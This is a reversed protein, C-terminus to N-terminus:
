NKNSLRLCLLLMFSILVIMLVWSWALKNNGAEMAMYIATPVTQTEGPINGAFMLTAGFEGLSRAFSLTIGAFLSKICLPLSISLFVRWEGAGDMRAANEIDEGISEFGARASQYMLPFSVVVAAIVAAQWTFIIRSHFWKELFAGGTGNRGFFVILLFGIVTPPLVVPLIFVTEIVAMFRSKKGALFRAAATGLVFVIVLSVLSVKISLLVPDWFNETWGM